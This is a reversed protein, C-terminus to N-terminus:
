LTCACEQKRLLRLAGIVVVNDTWAIPLVVVALALGTGITTLGTRLRAIIAPAALAGLLGATAAITDVLGIVSPHVGARVLRLTVTLLVFTMSFNTPNLRACRKRHTSSPQCSM